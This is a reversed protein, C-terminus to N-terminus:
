RLFGSQRPPNRSSRWPPVGPSGKRSGCDALTNHREFPLQAHRKQHADPMFGFGAQGTHVQQGPCAGVALSTARSAPSASLWPRVPGKRMPAMEVTSVPSRGWAKRAKVRDVGCNFGTIHARCTARATDPARLRHAPHRWRPQGATQGSCPRRSATNSRSSAKTNIARSCAAWFM